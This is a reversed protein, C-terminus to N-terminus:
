NQSSKLRMSEMDFEKQASTETTCETDKYLILLVYVYM